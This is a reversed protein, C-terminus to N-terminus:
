RLVEKLVYDFYPLSDRDDFDVPRDNGIVQDIEKQAAKFVEPHLVMCLLFSKLFSGTQVSVNLNRPSPTDFSSIGYGHRSIMKDAEHSGGSYCYLGVLTCYVLSIFSTRNM